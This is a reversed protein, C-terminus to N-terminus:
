HTFVKKGTAGILAGLLSLIGGIVLTLPLAPLGAVANIFSLVAGFHDSVAFRSILLLWALVGGVVGLLASKKFDEILYGGLIGAIVVLVWHIVTLVAGLVVIVVFGLIDKRM